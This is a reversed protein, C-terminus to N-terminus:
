LQMTFGTGCRLLRETFALLTLEWQTFSQLLKAAHAKTTEIQNPHKQFNLDLRRKSIAAQM